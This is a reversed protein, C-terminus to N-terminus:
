HSVKIMGSSREIQSLDFIRERLQQKITGLKVKVEDAGDEFTLIQHSQHQGIQPYEDVPGFRFIM